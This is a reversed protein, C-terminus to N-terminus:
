SGQGSAQYMSLQERLFQLALMIHKTVTQVSLDMVTAIEQHSLGEFRSLRFAEQRRPPLEKIWQHMAEGLHHADMEEAASIADQHSSVAVEAHVKSARKKMRMHNLSRTYVMRYLLAKLSRGADLGDRGNWLNIYAEQLIDYAADRDGVMQTAYRLLMPHSFRMLEDLATEDSVKIRRTWGAFADVM